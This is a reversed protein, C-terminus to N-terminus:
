FYHYIFCIFIEISKFFRTTLPTVLMMKRESQTVDLLVYMNYIVRWKSFRQTLRSSTITLSLGM